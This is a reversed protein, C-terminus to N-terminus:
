HTSASASGTESLDLGTGATRPNEAGEPKIEKKPRNLVLLKTIEAVAMVHGGLDDILDGVHEPKRFQDAHYPMLLTWLLERISEVNMMSLDALLEGYTKGTRKQLACLSNMRMRLVYTTPLEDSGRRVEIALEGREPNAEM